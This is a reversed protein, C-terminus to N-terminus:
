CRRCRVVGAGPLEAHARITAEELSTVEFWGGDRGMAERTKLVTGHPNPVHPCSTGTHLVATKKPKDLNLLM